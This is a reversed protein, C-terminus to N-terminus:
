IREAPGSSTAVLANIIRRITEHREQKATL